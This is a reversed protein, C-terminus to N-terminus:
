CSRALLRQNKIKIGPEFGRSIQAIKAFDINAGSIVTFVTKGALSGKKKLIGAIGLAGSPEPIFRKADWINQIANCVETNSVTIIEDLFNKCIEYCLKGARKVSTGDCFSDV